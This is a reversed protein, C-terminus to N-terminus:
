AATKKPPKQARWRRHVWFWQSIDERVAAEIVGTLLSTGRTVAEEDSKKELLIMPEITVRYHNDQTRHVFVPVIPTGNKMAIRAIIPTTHAPRNFFDVVVAEKPRAHQDILVAVARNEALSRVIRRAGKKSDICRGGAAERVRTFFRDVYPNKMKKAVFDVPFGLTPMFFTGVEWFGVHGSLLFVGKGMAFAEELHEMGEFSFYTELDAKGKFLDLRLMEVGSTGLHVFIKRVTERVESEPMDPFAQRLNEAATRRRGPQLHRSLHGLLTGLRFAAERPLARVVLALVLFMGYEAINKLFRKPM